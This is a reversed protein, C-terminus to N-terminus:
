RRANLMWLFVLAGLVGLLTGVPIEYPFRILRGLIDCALVLGAGSMAVLPLTRRLNEGAFRAVMNPVVLGVFPIMGVTVVTVAAIGAVIVLGLAVVRPYDLGLSRSTDEGMGAITFRDAFVYAAIALGGAAWLFEYRGLMVGSLEGNMWVDVYQILDREYALFTAAAGLIGGYVIGTLPVLLPDRPPLRRVLALFGATGVLAAATAAAMKLWLAAGPAVLTVAVLGLGAAQATGTTSPEVFRNRALMQMIVGAVALGAGALLAAATRPLRSVGLIWWEGGALSAVGTVASIGVLLVLAAPAALRALTM